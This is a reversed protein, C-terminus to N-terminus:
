GNTECFKVYEEILTDYEDDILDLTNNKRAIALVREIENEYEKRTSFRHQPEERFM